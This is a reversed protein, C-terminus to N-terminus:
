PGTTVPLVGWGGILVVSGPKMLAKLLEMSRQFAAGPKSGSLLPLSFHLLSEKADSSLFM